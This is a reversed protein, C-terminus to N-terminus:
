PIVTVKMAGSEPGLPVKASLPVLVVVAVLSLLPRARADTKVALLWAPLKVTLAVAALRGPETIKANLSEFSLKILAVAMLASGNLSETSIVSAPVSSPSGCHHLVEGLVTQYENVGVVLPATLTSITPVLKLSVM